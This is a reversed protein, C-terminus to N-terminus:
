GLVFLVEKLEASTQVAEAEELILVNNVWVRLEEIQRATDSRLACASVYDKLENYPMPGWAMKHKLDQWERDLDKISDNNVM